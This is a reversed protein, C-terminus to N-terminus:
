AAAVEDDVWEAVEVGFRRRLEAPVARGGPAVGPDRLIERKVFPFGLDLLRRWGVIVPNRGQGVVREHSWMPVHVFGEARLLRSLGLENRMIVETKDEEHRIDAWFRALAREELVGNCYALFYSQLHSDFQQTDTLGWVDAPTAELADLVPRLTTFPGAMSDNLLITRETAAAGPLLDLAISWSGFDYGANPRRIVVLRELDVDDGWALPEPVESTSSVAVQYGFAQLERVLTRVSRTVSPRRSWHALLAVRPGDIRDPTGLEFRCRDRLLERV